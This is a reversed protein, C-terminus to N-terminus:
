PLIAFLLILNEARSGNNSNENKTIDEKKNHM